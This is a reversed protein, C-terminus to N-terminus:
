QTGSGIRVNQLLGLVRGEAPYKCIHRTKQSMFPFFLEASRLPNYQLHGTERARIKIKVRVDKEM